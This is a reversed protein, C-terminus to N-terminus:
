EISDTESEFWDGAALPNAAQAGDRLEALGPQTIRGFRLPPRYQLYFSKVAAVKDSRDLQVRGQAHSHPGLWILADPQEAKGLEAQILSNLLDSACRQKQLTQYDIVYFQLRRLTAAVEGLDSLAAHEKQLLVRGQNLNFVILRIHDTSLQALLTSLSDVFMAVDEPYLKARDRSVPAAHLLITLHRAPRSTAHDPVDRDKLPLAEVTLQPTPPRLESESGQRRAQIRWSGSCVRNAEDVVMTEVRYVGEGVVFAGGIEGDFEEPADPLHTTSGLYIPHRGDPTVRVLVNVDRRMGHFQRLPFEIRYGAQFQLGFTLAARVPTIECRLRPSTATADMRERVEELFKPEVVSQAFVVVCTLLTMGGVQWRM